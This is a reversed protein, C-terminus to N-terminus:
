EYWAKRMLKEKVDFGCGRFASINQKREAYMKTVPKIKIDTGEM